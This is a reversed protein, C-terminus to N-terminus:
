KYKNQLKYFIKHYKIKQKAPNITINQGSNYTKAIDKEIINNYTYLSLKGLNKNQYLNNKLLDYLRRGIIFNVVINTNKYSDLVLPFYTSDINSLKEPTTSVNPGNEEFFTYRINELLQTSKSSNFISIHIQLYHTNTQLLMGLKFDNIPSDNYKIPINDNCLAKLCIDTILIKYRPRLSKINMLLSAVGTVCGILATITTIIDKIEM